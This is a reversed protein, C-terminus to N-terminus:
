FVDSTWINRVAEVAAMRALGGDERGQIVAVAEWSGEAEM